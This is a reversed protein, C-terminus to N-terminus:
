GGTLFQKLWALGAGAKATSSFQALTALMAGAFILSMALLKGYDQGQVAGLQDPERSLYASAAFFEEGILTYDCAAVFFPLQTTEATGAIQLSGIANGAEALFLSEAFFQGFYFCAAPRLDSMMSTVGAVYAFQEDALYTIDDARYAEPRGATLCAAEVTERCATMVLSRSTPVLVQCDYEAATRAVRGLVIVGAVTMMENIDQVGPVFLCPKGMETARGVAEDVADLAPIPRLRIVFGRRAAFIFGLVTGTVLVLVLGYGLRSADIMQRVPSAPATEVAPAIPGTADAPVIRYAYTRGLVCNTDVYVGAGYTAEGIPEWKRAAGSDGESWEAREVLYRFVRRPKIDDRDVPSRDWRVDLATGVDNPHDVVRANSVKANVDIRVVEAAIGGAEQAVADRVVATTTCFMIAVLVAVARVVTTHWQSQWHSNGWSSQGDFSAASM